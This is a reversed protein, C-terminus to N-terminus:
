PGAETTGLARALVAIRDRTGTKSFVAKFHDQVTNETVDMAAAISRTNGGSALLGVLERERVSLGVARTWVELRDRASAEHLTVVIRGPQQDEGTIRAALLTLWLGDRLHTRSYPPHDDIDQETALLQAAVNYVSAPVAPNGGSPPLLQDLWVQSAATRSLIRLDDDLTLVVPGLDQRQTASDPRFTAAQAERTARTLIPALDALLEADEKDFPEAPHIRWLELFGWMGFQDRFVTSLVDRVGYRAMVDRWARSRSLQGHTAGRLTATATTQTTWRGVPTLYKAKILAPLEPLCPVFAHPAAGVTTVPDTLLWIHADYPVVERLLDLVQQRLTTVERAEVAAIREHVRRRAWATAV